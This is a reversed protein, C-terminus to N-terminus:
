DIAQLWSYERTFIGRLRIPMLTLGYDFVGSDSRWLKDRVFELYSLEYHGWWPDPELAKYISHALGDALCLKPENLKDQIEIGGIDVFDWSFYPDKRSKLLNLYNQFAVLDFNRRKEIIIREAKENMSQAYRSIREIAYRLSYTYQIRPKSLHFQASTMKTDSAVVIGKWEGIQLINLIGKKSAHELDTFHICPRKTQRRAKLAFDVVQQVQEGDQSKVAVCGFVLWRSGKGGTGEDGSEDIYVFM